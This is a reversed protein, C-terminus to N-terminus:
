CFHYVVTDFPTILMLRNEEEQIKAVGASRGLRYHYTATMDNNITVYVDKIHTPVRKGIEIKVLGNAVRRKARELRYQVIKMFSEVDNNIKDSM